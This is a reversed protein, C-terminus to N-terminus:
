VHVNCGAWDHELESRSMCVRARSFCISKVIADALHTYFGLSLPAPRCDGTNLSCAVNHCEPSSQLKGIVVSKQAWPYCPFCGGKAVLIKWVSAKSRLASPIVRECSKLYSIQLFNLTFDLKILFCKSFEPGIYLDCHERHFFLSTLRCPGWSVHIFSAKTFESFCLLCHQFSGAFTM